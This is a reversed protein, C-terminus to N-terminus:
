NNIKKFNNIINKYGEKKVVEWSQKYDPFKQSYKINRDLRKKNFLRIFIQWHIAHLLIHSKTLQTEEKYDKKLFKDAWKKWKKSNQIQIQHILEHILTDIFDNKNEYLRVTLPDSLGRGYGIVYCIIEKEKWKLNIINSIESLIKEGEKEWINKVEEIYSIIKEYSPYGENREDLIKKIKKSNRYNSDYVRSYRFIVKPIM